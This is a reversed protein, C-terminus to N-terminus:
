DWMARIETVVTLRWALAVKENEEHGLFREQEKAKRAYRPSSRLWSERHLRFTRANEM